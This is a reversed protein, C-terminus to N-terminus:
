SFLNGFVARGKGKGKGKGRVKFNVHCTGSVAHPLFIKIERPSASNASSLESQGVDLSTQTAVEHSSPAPAPDLSSFWLFIQMLTVREISWFLFIICSRDSDSKGTKWWSFIAGMKVPLVAM